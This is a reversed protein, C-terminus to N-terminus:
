IYRGGHKSPRSSLLLCSIIFGIACGLKGSIGTRQLYTELLERLVHQINSFRYQPHRLLSTM